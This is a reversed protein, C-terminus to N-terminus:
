LRPQTQCKSCYGTLEVVHGLALFNHQKTIKGLLRELEPDTIKITADCHQCSAHHHHPTFIESLEIQSKLGHWIRNVVGLREFLGITRYTTARDIAPACDKALQSCTTPGGQALQEFVAKRPLTFSFGSTKLIDQFRTIVCYNYV